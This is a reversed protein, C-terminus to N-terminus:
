RGGGSRVAIPSSWATTSSLRFKANVGSGAFYHASLEVESDPAILTAWAAVIAHWTRNYRRAWRERRWSAAISQPTSDDLTVISYRHVEERPEHGQDNRPLDVWTYPQYVLWWRSDWVEVRVQIAEAYPCGIDSVTGTLASQYARQLESLASQHQRAMDGGLSDRPPRVMVTHGARRLVPRLPRHRAVSKVLADYVLGLDTSRKAPDLRVTGTLKAGLPAFVRTIADDPGFVALRRGYSAVTAWVGANKLLQRADPTALPTDLTVERAKEPVSLLELASCRVAPLTAAHSTPLTVPQVIPRPRVTRVHQRLPDSLDVEREIDGALEDFNESHVVHVEIDSNAARELLSTVRPLLSAGPRSVWWLGAPLAGVRTVAEDLADMISNDRGSYGVVLLGFQILAKVLVRRLREDQLRLEHDTNKLHDSQYDGHLKVLLPWAADRVCRQAREVSDLASVTLHAQRDPPLLDDAVAVAREILPDFNTTFLCRAFGSSILAALVRHAFSPTGRRVATEIYSRRDRADPYAAEFAAAYEGPDGAPPFGRAADFHSTIRREWFPDAVDVEQRPLRSDACYLRTKFDAIMDSGTPVGASASAGAGLLWALRHPRQAFSRAFADTALQELM